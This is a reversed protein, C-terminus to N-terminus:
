ARGACLHDSRSLICQRDITTIPHVLLEPWWRHDGPPFNVQVRVLAPPRARLRWAPRWGRGSGPGPDFYSLNLSQVGQLLLETTAPAGKLEPRLGFLSSYSMLRLDGATTVALTYRRLADPAVNGPSPGYFVLTDNRGDFFAYPPIADIATEPYAYAIRQRLLEQAGQISQALVTPAFSRRWVNAGTGLSQVLLLSILGLIALSVLLETLTFGGDKDSEDGLRL